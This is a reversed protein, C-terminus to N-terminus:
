EYDEEYDEDYDFLGYSSCYEEIENEFDSQYSDTACNSDCEIAYTLLMAVARNYKYKGLENPDTDLFAIKFDNIEVPFFSIFGPHSGFNDKIWRHFDRYRGRPKLKQYYLLLKVPEAIELDFEVSDNEYNYFNPSKFVCNSVTVNGFEEVFWDENFIENMVSEFSHCLQKKFEEKTMDDDYCQEFTSGLSTGYLGPQLIPIWTNTMELKM